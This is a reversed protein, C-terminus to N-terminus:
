RVLDILMRLGAVNTRLEESTTMRTLRRLAYSRRLYFSTYARKNWKRLENKNLNKTEFAPNDAPKLDAYV